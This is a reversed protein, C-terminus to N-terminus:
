PANPDRLPTFYSPLLDPGLPEVYEFPSPNDLSCEGPEGGPTAQGLVIFEEGATFLGPDIEGHDADHQLSQSL